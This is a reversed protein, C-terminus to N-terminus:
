IPEPLRMGRFSNATDARWLRENTNLIRTKQPRVVEEGRSTTASARRRLNPNDNTDYTSHKYPNEVTSAM